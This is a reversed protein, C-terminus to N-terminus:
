LGGGGRGRVGIRGIPPIGLSGKEDVCLQRRPSPQEGEKRQELPESQRQRPKQREEKRQHNDENWAMQRTDHIDGCIFFCRAGPDFRPGSPQSEQVKDLWNPESGFTMWSTQSIEKIKPPRRTPPRRIERFFSRFNGLHSDEQTTVGGLRKQGCCTDSFIGM